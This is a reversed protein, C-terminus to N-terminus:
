AAEVTVKYGLRQIRRVSRQVTAERDLEGSYNGGLERYHTGRRLWPNGKGIGSSRRPSAIWNLGIEVLLQEATRRGV